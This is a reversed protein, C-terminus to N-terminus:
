CLAARPELQCLHSKTSESAVRLSAQLIRLFSIYHYVWIFFITVCMQLDHILEIQVCLKLEREIQQWCIHGLTPLSQEPEM